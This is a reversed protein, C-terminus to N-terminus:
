TRKFLLKFWIILRDFQFIVESDSTDFPTIDSLTELVYPQISMNPNQACCRSICRLREIGDRGFRELIIINNNQFLKKINVGVVKQNAVIKVGSQVCIQALIDCKRKLYQRDVEKSIAEDSLTVKIISIFQGM